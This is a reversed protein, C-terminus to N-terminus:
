NSNDDGAQAANMYEVVESLTMSGCKEKAIGASKELQTCDRIYPGTTSARSVEPYVSSSRTNESGQAFAASGILFVASAAITTTFTNKFM